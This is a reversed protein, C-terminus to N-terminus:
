RLAQGANRNYCRLRASTESEPQDASSYCQQGIGRVKLRRQDM